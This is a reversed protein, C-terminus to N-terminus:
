TRPVGCSPARPPRGPEPGRRPRDGRSRGHRAPSPRCPDESPGYSRSPRDKAVSSRPSHIIMHPHPPWTGGGGGGGGTPPCCGGACGSCFYGGRVPASRPRDLGTLAGTPTDENASPPVNKGEYTSQGPWDICLRDKSSE